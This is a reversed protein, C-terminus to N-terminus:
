VERNWASLYKYCGHVIECMLGILGIIAAAPKSYTPNDGYYYEAEKTKGYYYDRDRVVRVGLQAERQKMRNLEAKVVDIETASPQRPTIAAEIADAIEVTGMKRIVLARGTM